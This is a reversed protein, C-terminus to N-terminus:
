NSAKSNKLLKIALFILILVLSVGLILHGIGAIGSIMANIGSSLNTNLVELIGRVLLMVGTINLGIHYFILTINTKKDSFSFSKELLLLILFMIMGLILYHTHVVSLSTENTFGIAKTFERYFVGGLAGLIAYIISPIIFKKM